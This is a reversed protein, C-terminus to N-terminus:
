KTLANRREINIKQLEKALRLLLEANDDNTWQYTAAIKRLLLELTELDTM